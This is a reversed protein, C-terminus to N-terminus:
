LTAADDLAAVEIAIDGPSRGTPNVSAYEPAAARLLAGADEGPDGVAIIRHISVDTLAEAWAALVDSGTSAFSRKREDIAAATIVVASFAALAAAGIHSGDSVDGMAVKAGLDRLRRAVAPDTVFVRVEGERGLLSQVIERGGPADAGIVIVPM